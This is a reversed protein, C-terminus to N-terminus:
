YHVEVRIGTVGTWEYLWRSEEVRMNICGHGIPTGFSNHWYAGHIAYDEFFYQVWPVDPQFYYDGAAQSGGSMDQLETRAYTRFSGTVTPYRASGSSITFMEVVTDGQYATLVQDSLDIDIWKEGSLPEAERRSQVSPQPEWSRGVPYSNQQSHVDEWEDLYPSRRESQREWEEDPEYSTEEAPEERWPDRYPSRRSEQPDWGVGARQYPGGSSQAEWGVGQRQYDATYREPEEDEWQPQWGGGGGSVVLQQGVYVLNANSLDNLALLTSVDTGYRRAIHSLTEGAAVVHIGGRGAQAQARAPFVLVLLSVAWVGVLLMRVIVRRSWRMAMTEKM